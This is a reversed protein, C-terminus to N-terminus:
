VLRLLDHAISVTLLESIDIELFSGPLRDAAFNSVFSSARRMANDCFPLGLSFAAQPQQTTARLNPKWAPPLANPPIPHREALGLV